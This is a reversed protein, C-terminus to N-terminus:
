PRSAAFRQEDISVPWRAKLQEALADLHAQERDWRMATRVRSALVDDWPPSELEISDVRVVWSRDDETTLGVSGATRVAFAVRAVLADAGNGASDLTATGTTTPYTGALTLFGAQDLGAASDLMARARDDDTFSAWTVQASHVEDFRHHNRALWSRAESDTINSEQLEPSQAREQNTVARIRAARGTPDPAWDATPYRRAAELSLLEDRIALGLADRWTDPPAVGPRVVPPGTDEAPLRAKVEAVTVEADGVTAVVDAARQKAASTCSALTPILVTATILALVATRRDILLL